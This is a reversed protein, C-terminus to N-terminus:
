GEVLECVLQRRLQHTRLPVSVVRLPRGALMSDEACRVAILDGIQTDPIDYPWWVAFRLSTTLQEGFVATSENQDGLMRVRCPGEHIATAAAPTSIGTNVDLTTGAGPRRITGYDAMLSEALARGAAVSATGRM